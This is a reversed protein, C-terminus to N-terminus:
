SNEHFLQEEEEKKLRQEEDTLQDQVYYPDTYQQNGFEGLTPFAGAPIPPPKPPETPRIYNPRNGSVTSGGRSHGPRQKLSKVGPNRNDLNADPKRNAQVSLPIPDFPNFLEPM